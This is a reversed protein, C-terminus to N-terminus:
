ITKLRCQLALNAALTDSLAVDRCIFLDDASLRLAEVTAEQLEQDVCILFSQEKDPDTVRYVTNQAVDDLRELRSHLAYGEKVAVEWVVAEPQWGDVLPDVFLGMQEILRDPEQPDVPDWKRFNSPALRFVRLGLDESALRETGGLQASTDERLKESVSILRTRTIEAITGLGPEPDPLPEPLQVSVFRRNGGDEHNQALVAHGTVGGGSFFDVVLDGSDDTTAIQLLRRVLRSPKVTDLVNETESFAVLSLLEKKAEQTHGVDKHLLLSQPVIGSKVDSLYRKLRPMSNGDAGWWIRGEADLAAFKAESVRWVMGIAPEFTKGGPSTVTYKGLGYYNRATLDGSTWSGRPDDDPNSYRADAEATRPLLVPLWDASSRAYLLVYDHDESVHKATNKPAFNKQWIFAAVFNEEGFVENMLLRLNHVEHDDISVFIVGDDRLLQRAIFLRPYMMSLWASHYRGSTEPNSTLLNGAEDTQGTLQLYRGLPDAFDDPYIFDNGTNYPPDIYIMKVQGAYAKRLLKLTELNEGEIFVHQTSDFEISEDRAPVLTTRSPTQLLRIADRKGAWSFSYREPSDDLDDALAARLKDFDVGGEGFAEPILNRLAALREATLDGSDRSV